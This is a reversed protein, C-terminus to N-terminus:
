TKRRKMSAEKTGSPRGVVVASIWIGHVGYEM